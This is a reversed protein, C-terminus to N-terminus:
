LVEASQAVFNPAHTVSKDASLGMYDTRAEIERFTGGEKVIIRYTGEANALKTASWLKGQVRFADGAPLRYPRSGFNGGVGPGEALIERKGEADVVTWSHGVVEIESDRANNFQVDYGFNYRGKSKGSADAQGGLIVRETVLVSTQPLLESSAEDQCPVLRLDKQKKSLLLRGVRASFSRKEPSTDGKLVEFQFSGHMSGYPTSLSTASEYSWEGGPPLVPTVGRAGPGKVENTLTGHQDVFIWHRTLMQVTDTGLNKFTIIYKWGYQGGHSGQFISRARLEIGRTVLSSEPPIEEGCRMEPGDPRAPPMRMRVEDPHEPLVLPEEGGAAEAVEKRVEVYRKVSVQRQADIESSTRAVEQKLKDRTAEDAAYTGAAAGPVSESGKKGVTAQPGGPLSLLLLVYLDESTRAVHGLMRSGYSPLPEDWLPLAETGLLLGGAAAAAAAVLLATGIAGGASAGAFPHRRSVPQQESPGAM